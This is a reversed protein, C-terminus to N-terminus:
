APSPSAAERTSPADTAPAGVGGRAVVVGRLGRPTVLRQILALAGDFVLALVAVVIAAGIVGSLKYSAQNNIIEGLGDGGVIAAIPITAIVFLVSTRIGAFILPLALPLEVRLLVDLPRMGMGRAAEVADPDVGDVAVYANTLIPPVALVVFAVVINLFTLGLFGIGIALVALTPLARGINSLNIAVFSGKHLHGLWLGLPLGIALAIAMAAGFYALHQGLNTLVQDRQDWLFRFPATIGAAVM